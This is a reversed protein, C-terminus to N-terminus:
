RMKQRKSYAGQCQVAAIDSHRCKSVTRCLLPNERVHLFLCDLSDAVQELVCSGARRNSPDRAMYGRGANNLRVLAQVTELLSADWPVHNNRAYIAKLSVKQITYNTVLATCLASGTYKPTGPEYYTEHKIELEQLAGNTALCHALALDLAPDYAYISFRFRQLCPCNAVAHVLAVLEQPNQHWAFTFPRRGYVLEELCPMLPVAYALAELARSVGLWLDDEFDCLDVHLERVRSGALAEKLVTDNGLKCRDFRISRISALSM